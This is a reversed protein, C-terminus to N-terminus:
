LSQLYSHFEKQLKEIRSMLEDVKSRYEDEDIDEDSEMLSSLEYNANSLQIEVQRLLENVDQDEM